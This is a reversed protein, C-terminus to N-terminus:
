NFTRPTHPTPTVPVPAYVFEGGDDDEGEEGGFDMYEMVDSIDFKGKLIGSSIVSDIEEPHEIVYAKDVDKQYFAEIFDIKASVSMEDIIETIEDGYVTPDYQVAENLSEIVLKAKM